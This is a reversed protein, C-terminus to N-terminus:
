LLGPFMMQGRKVKTQRPIIGMWVQIIGTKTHYVYKERYEQWAIHLAMWFYIKPQGGFKGAGFRALNWAAVMLERLEQKRKANM